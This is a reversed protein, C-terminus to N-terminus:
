LADTATLADITDAVIENANEIEPAAWEISGDSHALIVIDATKANKWVFYEGRKYCNLIPNM